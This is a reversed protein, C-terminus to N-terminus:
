EDVEVIYGNHYNSNFENHYGYPNSLVPTEGIMTQVSDHTHGCVWLKPNNKLIWESMETVYFRNLDNGIYKGNICNYSPLHHTVVVDPKLGKLKYKFDSNKNYVWERFKKICRFDALCNEYLINLPDQPFWMTGGFIKIGDLEILENDLIHLGEYKSELKGLRDKMAGINQGYYEHNGLVLIVNEWRKMILPIIKKYVPDVCGLDGAIILNDASVKLENVIEVGKDKYSELHLDSVIQFSTTM